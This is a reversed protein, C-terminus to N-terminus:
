KVIRPSIRLWAMANEKGKRYNGQGRIEFSRSLGKIDSLNRLLLYSESKM